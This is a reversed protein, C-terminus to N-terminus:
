ETVAEAPDSEAPEDEPLEEESIEETEEIVTDPQICKALSRGNKDEGAEFTVQQGARLKRFGESQIESFHAFHDIGDEDEIFGYGRRASFWKVTGRKEAM